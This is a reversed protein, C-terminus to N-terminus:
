STGAVSGSLAADANGASAGGGTVDGPNEGSAAPQEVATTTVEAVTLHTGTGGYNDQFVVVIRWSVACWVM